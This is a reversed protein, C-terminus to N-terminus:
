QHAGGLYDDRDMGRNRCVDDACLRFALQLVDRDLIADCCIGPDFKLNRKDCQVETM